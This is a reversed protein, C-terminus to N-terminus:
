FIASILGSGIAAGTRLNFFLFAVFWVKHSVQVLAWVVRRPIHWRVLYDAHWRFGLTVGVTNGYKGFKTKKEEQGPAQQLGVSNMGGGVPPPVDVGHMAAGFPKYPSKSPNIPPVGAQPLKEVYASPFLAQRGKVRGM